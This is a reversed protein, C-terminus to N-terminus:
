MSLVRDPIMGIEVMDSADPPPTDQTHLSVDYIMEKTITEFVASLRFVWSVVLWRRCAPERGPKDFDSKWVNVWPVFVEALDYKDCIVALQYFEDLTVTAPIKRAKFHVAQLVMLLSQYDDGVLTMKTPHAETATQLATGEHFHPSELMTRFVPSALCLTKSSVRISRELSDSSVDLILDGRPDINHHPQEM